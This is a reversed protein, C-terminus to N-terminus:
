YMRPLGLKANGIEKMTENPTFAASRTKWSKLINRGSSLLYLCGADTDFALMLDLGEAQATLGFSKIENGKDDLVTVFVKKNQWPTVM